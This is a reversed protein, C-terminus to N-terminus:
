FSFTLATGLVNADTWDDRTTSDKDSRLLYYIDFVIDKTLNLSVGSSVRYQDFEGKREEYFIEGSVYPMISHKCVTFPIGAM